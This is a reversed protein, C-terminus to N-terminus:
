SLKKRKILAISGIVVGSFSAILTAIWLYLTDATKPNTTDVTTGTLIYNSLHQLHGVLYGDILDLDVVEEVTVNNNIDIYVLKFSNYKGMTEEDYPIKIDLSKDDRLTGDDKVINIDYFALMTGYEKVAETVAAEVEDYMEQTIGNEALEEETLKMIDIIVLEFDRNEEDKFIVINGDDDTVTYTEGAETWKAIM